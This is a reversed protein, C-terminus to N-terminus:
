NSPVIAAMLQPLAWEFADRYYPWDHFGPGYFLTQHAIGASSLAQALSLNMVYLLPEIAYLEPSDLDEHPGGPLGNGCALLVTMGRLGELHTGPDHKQWVPFNTVPDGWIPGNPTGAAPNLTFALAASVRDVALFDVAGSLAAAAKFTGPFRASYSMAGFGGMSPGAVARHDAGLTRLQTEMFPLMVQLHFTEWQFEGSEWNSYWGPNGGGGDPMVVIVDLAETLERANGLTTWSRYDGPADHLLYLVPYRRTGSDYDAPLLVRVRNETVQVGDPLPVAVEFCRPAPCSPDNEVFVSGPPLDARKNTVPESAGPQCASVLCALALLGMGTHVIKM